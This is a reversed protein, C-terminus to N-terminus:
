TNCCTDCCHMFPADKAEACTVCVSAYCGDCYQVWTCDYSCFTSQCMDCYFEGVSEHDPDDACQECWGKECTATGCTVDHFASSCIASSCVSASCGLCKLAPTSVGKCDCCADVDFECLPFRNQLQEFHESNISCGSIRITKLTLKLEAKLAEMLATSDVGSCGSLDLHRIPNDSLGSLCEVFPTLCVLTNSHVSLEEMCGGARAVILSLEDNHLYKSESGPADCVKWARPTSTGAEQWSQSVRMAMCRSKLPLLELIVGISDTPILQSSPTSAAIVSEISAIIESAWAEENWAVESPDAISRCKAAHMAEQPAIYKM